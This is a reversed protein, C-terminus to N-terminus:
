RAPAHALYVRRVGGREPRHRHLLLHLGRGVAVVPRAPRVGDSFRRGADLAFPRPRTAAGRGRLYGPDPRPPRQQRRLPPQLAQHGQAARRGLAAREVAGDGQPPKPQACWPHITYQETATPRNLMFSSALLMQGHPRPSDPAAGCGLAPAVEALPACRVVYCFENGQAAYGRMALELVIRGIGSGPACVRQRHRNAATVPLLRELEALLPQFCQEREARGEASWERALQHLAGVVKALHRHASGVRWQVSTPLEAESRVKAWLEPQQGASRERSTTGFGRHFGNDVTGITSLFEGNTRVAALMRGLHSRVGAAGGPLRAVHEAPMRDLLHRKRRTLEGLVHSGYENYSQVIDLFHSREQAEEQQQQSKQQRPGSHGGRGGRGGHGGHGNARVTKNHSSRQEASMAAWIEPALRTGSDLDSTGGGAPAVNKGSPSSPGGNRKSAKANRVRKAHAKRAGPTMSEWVDPALRGHSKTAAAGEMAAARQM